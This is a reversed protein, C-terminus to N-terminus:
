LSDVRTPLRRFLHWVGRKFLSVRVISGAYDGGQNSVEQWPLVKSFKEDLAVHTHDMARSFEEQDPFELLVLGMGMLKTDCIVGTETVIDQIEPADEIRRLVGIACRDLWAYNEEHISIDIIPVKPNEMCRMPSDIPWEDVQPNAMSAQPKEVITVSRTKAMLKPWAKESNNVVPGNSRTYPRKGFRGLSCRIASAGIYQQGLAKVMEKPNAV